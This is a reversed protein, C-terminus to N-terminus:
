IKTLGFLFYGPEMMKREEMGKCGFVGGGGGWGGIKEGIKCKKKRRNEGFDDWGFM